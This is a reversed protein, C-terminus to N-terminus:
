QKTKDLKELMETTYDMENKLYEMRRRLIREEDLGSLNMSYVDRESFRNRRSLGTACFMNRFGGGRGRGKEYEETSNCNGNHRNMFSGPTSNGSCYGMKKGTMPGKGEPGKKNGGPM